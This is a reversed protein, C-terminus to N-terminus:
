QGVGKIIELPRTERSRTFSEGANLTFGNRGRKACIDRAERVCHARSWRGDFVAVSDSGCAPILKVPGSYDRGNWGTSEHYFEAYIM